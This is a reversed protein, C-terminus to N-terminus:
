LIKEVQMDPLNSGAIKQCNRIMKRYNETLRIFTSWLMFHEVAYLLPSMACVGGWASGDNKTVVWHPVAEVANTSLRDTVIGWIVERNGETEASCMMYRMQMVRKKFDDSTGPINPLNLQHMTRLSESTQLDFLARGGEALALDLAEQCATKARVWKDRSYNLSVLEKGYGPTEYNTNKWGTFPFGGNWLPSAAYLLVRAKLAKSAVSTARGLDNVDVTAPLVKAAEDLWGVIKDVCYDIHSRGPFESKPTNPLYYHEIIPIPGYAELLRFHYYAQLFLIEAKWRQRDNLSVGVPNLEDLTKVFLHCHGLYDYCSNWPLAAPGWNSVYTSSLQDWSVQQGLYGWLLPNVFEDTSSELAGLNNCPASYNTGSYCSYLFGIADDKDRMTDDFDATEPPVVDLYNCATFCCVPLIIKAWYLMHQIIKM